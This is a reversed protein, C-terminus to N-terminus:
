GRGGWLKGGGSGEMADVDDGSGGSECGEGVGDNVRCGAVFVAQGGFAGMVLAFVGCKSYLMLGLSELKVVRINRSVTLASRMTKAELAKSIIM